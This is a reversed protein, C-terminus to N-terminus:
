LLNKIKRELEEISFPRGDYKLITKDIKIGYFQLLNALQGTLNNEIDIIKNVGKLYKKLEEDPFPFLYIPQIVKLNYKEGIEKVVGRPSGWTILCVKSMKNGYVKIRRKKSLYNKITKMKKLIKGAAMKILGVEETALGFEDHTYSSLKVVANKEGPFALPSIGDKTLLYRKYKGKGKWIKPKEEKIKNEEIQTSFISESLHKDSLIIVPVQFKWALNLAEGSLYFAEEADGPALVIKPFEGHGAFLSFFLESQATYTPVGTAPGVRQSLVIVTPIEAQGALSLHEVMLAFGGGSTGIMNKVGAYSAGQAMGIVAIENEPQLTLVKFKEENEALFHLISTAPTMPYAIYLKLGVKVAGLAIAENGTLLQLPQSKIPKIELIQGFKKAQQFTEKALKINEQWKKEISNRIVEAVFSFKIGLLSTFFGLIATNKVIAPLKHRETIEKLPLGIGKVKVSNSDFIIFSEKKLRWSHQKITEQDFAILFDIKEKHGEIKKFAARVITFNHGGKILSPYDNYVFIRYGLRNFLKAIMLGALRIGEGAKGGILISYENM